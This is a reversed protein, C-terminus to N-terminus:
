SLQTQASCKHFASQLRRPHTATDPPYHGVNQPIMIGEYETDLVLRSSNSESSSPVTIHQFKL